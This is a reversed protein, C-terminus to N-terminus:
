QEFIMDRLGYRDLEARMEDEFAVSGLIIKHDGSRSLVAFEAVSVLPVDQFGDAKAVQSAIRDIVRFTKIGVGELIKLVQRGYAGAGYISYHSDSHSSLASRLRSDLNVYKSLQEQTKAIKDKFKAYAIFGLELQLNFILRYEQLMKVSKELTFGSFSVNSTSARQYNALTPDFICDANGSLTLYTFWDGLYKFSAITRRMDRVYISRFLCASVNMIMNTDTLVPKLGGRPIVRLGISDPEIDSLLSSVAPTPLVTGESNLKYSECFFFVSSFHNELAEVARELFIPVAIDDSEAIWIYDGVCLELGHSWQVFPSGSNEKNVVLARIRKDRPVLNSSFGSTADDLIILEINSFTQDLISRIREELFDLHNFHPLIVSVLPTNM